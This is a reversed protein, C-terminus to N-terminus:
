ARGLLNAQRGQLRGIINGDLVVRLDGRGLARVFTESIAQATLSDAAAAGPSGPGSGGGFVAGGRARYLPEPAGTRNDVVSRGPLLWGGSDM